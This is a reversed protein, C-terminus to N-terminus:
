EAEKAKFRQSYASLNEYTADEDEIKLLKGIKWMGEGFRRPLKSSILCNAWGLLGDICADKEIGHHNPNYEFDPNTFVEPWFIKDAMMGSAMM